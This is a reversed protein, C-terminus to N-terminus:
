NAAILPRDHRLIAMSEPPWFTLWARGVLDDKRVMGFSRSDNLNFRNDNMLFYNDAPVRYQGVNISTVGLRELSEPLYSERLPQNNLAVQAGKINLVDGPLGIVRFTSSRNPDIRSRVVVIDGRAPSTLTYPIRSVLLRQGPKLLPAMSDDLVESTTFFFNFAALIIGAVLVLEVLARWLSTSSEVAPGSHPGDLPATM